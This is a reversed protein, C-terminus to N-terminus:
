VDKDSKANYVFSFNYMLTVSNFRHKIIESSKKIFDIKINQCHLHHRKTYISRYLQVVQSGSRLVRNVNDTSFILNVIDTWKLCQTM